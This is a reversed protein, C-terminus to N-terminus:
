HEPPQYITYCGALIGAPSTVEDEQPRRKKNAEEPNLIEAISPPFKSTSIHAKLRKMALKFTINDMMEAWIKVRGPTPEFNPYAEVIIKVFEKAQKNDM